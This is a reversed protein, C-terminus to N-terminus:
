SDISGSDIKNKIATRLQSLTRDNLTSLTAVRSQLNALNTAAAVEAKFSVTWQRLINIEDKIIDAFARLLVGDAEAADLLNKGGTRMTDVTAQAIAADVAAQEGATMVELVGAVHKWYKQPSGLVGSLDPNVLFDSRGASDPSSASPHVSLVKNPTSNPDFVVILAM